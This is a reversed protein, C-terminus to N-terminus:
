NAKTMCRPTPRKAAASAASPSATPRFSANLPIRGFGSHPREPICTATSRIHSRQQPIPSLPVPDVGHRVRRGCATIRAGARGTSPGNPLLPNGGGPLLAGYRRHTPVSEYQHRHARERRCVARKPCLDGYVRGRKSRSSISRYMPPSRFPGRRRRTKSWRAQSYECFQDSPRRRRKAPFASLVSRSKGAPRRWSLAGYPRSGSDAAPFQDTLYSDFGDHIRRSCAARAHFPFDALNRNENESFDRRSSFAPLSLRVRRWFILNTFFSKKM